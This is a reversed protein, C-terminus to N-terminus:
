ENISVEKEETPIDIDVMMSLYDINAKNEEHKQNFYLDLQQSIENLRKNVNNIAVAVDKQM